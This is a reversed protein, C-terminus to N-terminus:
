RRQRSVHHSNSLSGCAPCFNLDVDLVTGDSTEATKGRVQEDTMDDPLPMETAGYKPLSRSQVMLYCRLKVNDETVLELDQYPM